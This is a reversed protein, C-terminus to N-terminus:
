NKSDINSYYRYASTALETKYRGVKADAYLNIIEEDTYISFEQSFEKNQWFKLIKIKFQANKILPSDIPMKLLIEEAKDTYYLSNALIFISYLMICSKQYKDNLSNYINLFEEYKKFYEYFMDREYFNFAQYSVIELLYLSNFGANNKSVKIYENQWSNNYLTERDKFRKENGIVNEIKIDLFLAKNIESYSEVRPRYKHWYINKRNHILRTKSINNNDNVLDINDVLYHEVIDYDIADSNILIDKWNATQIKQDLDLVICYDIDKPLLSLATNKAITEDWPIFSASVVNIGFSKAVEITNDTSGTDLILHYDADKSSEYWTRVNEEENKAIGYVAIKM